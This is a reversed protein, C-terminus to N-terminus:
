FKEYAGSDLWRDATNHRFGAARYGSLNKPSHDVNADMLPYKGSTEVHKMQREYFQIGQELNTTMPTDVDKQYPKVKEEKHSEFRNSSGFSFGGHRKPSTSLAYSVIGNEPHALGVKNPEYNDTPNNAM